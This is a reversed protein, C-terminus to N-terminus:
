EIDDLTESRSDTPSHDYRLTSELSEHRLQSNAQGLNGDEVIYTGTSHRISYWSLDRNETNIDTKELLRRLLDNLTKKDYPNGKQNLWIERRNDYKPLAARQEMWAENLRSTEPRLAVKWNERGKASNEKPVYLENIDLRLWGVGSNEVEIPRLAADLATNILSPIKMCERERDWIERNIESKPIGKKQALHAKIRDREKPTVSNYHPLQGFNLAAKRLEAREERRFYDREISSQEKFTYTTNWQNGGREARFEHYKELTNQFKRKSAPSYSEGDEKVIEDDNLAKEIRDCIDQNLETMQGRSFAYGARLLQDYRSLYNEATGPALGVGEEPEKGKELMFEYFDEAEQILPIRLRPGVLEATEQSIYQTM